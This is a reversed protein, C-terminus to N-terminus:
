IAIRLLTEPAPTSDEETPYLEALGRLEGAYASLAEFLERGALALDNAGPTGRHDVTAYLTQLELARCLSRASELLKRMCALRDAEANATAARMLAVTALTTSLDRARIVVQRTDQETM